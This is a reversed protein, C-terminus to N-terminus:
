INRGNTLNKITQKTIILIGKFRDKFQILLSIQLKSLNTCDVIIMDYDTTDVETIDKFTDYEFIENNFPLRKVKLIKNVTQLNEWDKLDYVKNQDQNLLSAYVRGIINTTSDEFNLYLIKTNSNKSAQAALMCLFTTKGAAFKSHVITIKEKLAKPTIPLIYNGLQLQLDEKTLLKIIEEIDTLVPPETYLWEIDFCIRWTEKSINIELYNDSDLDVEIDGNSGDVNINPTLPLQLLKERNTKNNKVIRLNNPIEKKYLM